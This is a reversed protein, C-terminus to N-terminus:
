IVSGLKFIPLYMAIVLGGIVVGLVLMIFPEMLTSISAVAENVEIEYFDAVKALMQDLAGSEEGVAVMQGVMDPFLGTHELAAALSAGDGVERRVVDTADAYAANGAAGSVSQLADVLPVGAAFLTALTRSWRALAAKRVIDGFVPLKLLWRDTRAQLAVSRRWARAFLYAGGGLMGALAWWYATMFGSIAIVVQTPLPLEAGFSRFVEKFSPVVWIMIISTVLVAFAVIAAPYVLAARVKSRTELIKEKYHALSALLEDLLGAQEGAAVLNCFLADFHRPHRAFAQHLSSGSEVDARLGLILRGLAPNAHSRAVIDFAQLLPVGAKLMTALQRTFLAIDKGSIRKDRQRGKRKVSTAQIGQRRLTAGVIAPGGARMEGRVTKGQRDRGQWAYLEERPEERAPAANNRQTSTM